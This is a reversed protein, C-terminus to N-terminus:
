EPLAFNFQSAIWADIQAAEITSVHADVYLYNASQAHRDAQIDRRVAASVLGWDRNRQSFWQSAEAHDYKPHPERDNAGEMIAITRSTALLQNINRVAGPVDDAALHDNIVYSTAAADLRERWFPDEPGIRIQDVSELYPALTYIWSRKDEASRRDDGHSWEPFNGRHTQCFQQIALGIQRLNSKCSASRAAARASQVAPLLLAILVGIIAIVVLLEVLTFGARRNV